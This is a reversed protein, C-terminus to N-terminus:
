QVGVRVCFLENLASETGGLPTPFTSATYQNNQSYGQASVASYGIRVDSSSFSIAVVYSTGGTLNVAQGASGGSPKLDALLTHGVWGITTSSVTVAAVGQGILNLSTDYIALKVTGPTGGFSKCWIEMSQVRVTGSGSCTFTLNGPNNRITYGGWEDISTAAGTSLSGFYTTTAGITYAAGGGFGGNLLLFAQANLATVLFLIILSTYKMNAFGAPTFQAM